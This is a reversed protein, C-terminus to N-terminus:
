AGSNLALFIGLLAVCLPSKQMDPGRTGVDQKLFVLGRLAITWM